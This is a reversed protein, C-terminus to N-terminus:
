YEQGALLRQSEERVYEGFYNQAKKLNGRDINVESFPSQVYGKIAGLTKAICQRIISQTIHPERDLGLITKPTPYYVHSNLVQPGLALIMTAMDHGEHAQSESLYDLTLEEELRCRADGYIDTKRCSSILHSFRWFLRAQFGPDGHLERAAELENLISELEFLVSAHHASAYILDVRDSIEDDGFPLLGQNYLKEFQEKMDLKSNTVLTLPGYDYEGDDQDAHTQEHTVMIEHLEDLSFPGDKVKRMLAHALNAVDQASFDYESYDCWVKDVVLSNIAEIAQEPSLREGQVSINNGKFLEPNLNKIWGLVQEKHSLNFYLETSGSPSMTLDYGEGMGEFMLTDMIAGNLDVYAEGNDIKVVCDMGTQLLTREWSKPTDYREAYIHRNEPSYYSKPNPSKQDGGVISAVAIRDEIHAPNITFGM